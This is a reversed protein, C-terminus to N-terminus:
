AVGEEVEEGLDEHAFGFRVVGAEHEDVRILIDEKTYGDHNAEECEYGHVFPESDCGASFAAVVVAM